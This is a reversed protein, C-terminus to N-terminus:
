HNFDNELQQRIPAVPNERLKSLMADGLDNARDMAGQAQRGAKDISAKLLSPANAWDHAGHVADDFAKDTDGMLEGIDHLTDKFDNLINNSSRWHDSDREKPLGYVLNFRPSGAASNAVNTGGRARVLKGGVATLVVGGHDDTPRAYQETRGRSDSGPVSTSTTIGLASVAVETPVTLESRHTPLLNDVRNVSTKTSVFTAPSNQSRHLLLEYPKAPNPEVATTIAVWLVTAAYMSRM